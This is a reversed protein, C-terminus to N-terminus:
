PGEDKDPGQLPLLVAVPRGALNIKEALIRGLQISEDRDIRVASVQPNHV